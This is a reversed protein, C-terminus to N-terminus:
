HFIFTSLKISYKSTQPKLVTCNGPLFEGDCNCVASENRYICTGNMGCNLSCVHQCYEGGFGEYCECQFISFSLDGESLCYGNLCLFSAPCIRCKVSTGTCYGNNCDSNPCAPAVIEMQISEDTNNLGFNINWSDDNLVKGNFIIPAQNGETQPPINVTNECKIGSFAPLCRCVPRCLADQFCSGGNSCIGPLSCTNFACVEEHNEDQDLLRAPTSAFDSLGLCTLMYTTFVLVNKMADM